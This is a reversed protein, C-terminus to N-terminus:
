VHTSGPCHPPPSGKNTAAVVNPIAEILQRVVEVNGSAVAAQMHSSGDPYPMGLETLPVKKMMLQVLQQNQALLAAELASEERFASRELLLSGGVKELLAEAMACDNDLEACLSLPTNGEKDEALLRTAPMCGVLRGVEEVNGERIADHLLFPGDGVEM